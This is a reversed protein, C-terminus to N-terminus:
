GDNLQNTNCGTEDVFLVYEPHILRYKTPLGDKYQIPETLEEAVGAEVITAYIKEYMNEFNERTVWTRRKIDKIVTGKTTLLSQHCSMFGHYWAAGLNGEDELRRLKKAAQLKEQYKTKSILSNALEIVTGKTLPQGM